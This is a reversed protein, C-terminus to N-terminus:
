GGSKEDSYGRKAKPRFHNTPSRASAKYTADGDFNNEQRSVGTEVILPYQCAGVHALMIEFAAQRKGLKPLMEELTLTNM